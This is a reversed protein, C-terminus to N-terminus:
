AEPPPLRLITGDDLLAGNVEGQRGHLIMRVRGQAETLGPMPAAPGLAQPPAGQGRGPGAPGNDIVTQASAEDTVSFAQVLPLAAARLGHVTVTDGPKV